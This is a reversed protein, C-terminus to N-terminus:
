YDRGYVGNRTNHLFPHANSAFPAWNTVGPNAEAPVRDETHGDAFVMPAKELLNNYIDRELSRRLTPLENDWLLVKAAPYRVMAQRTGKELKEWQDSPVPEGSWIRPQGLFSASYQYSSFTTGVLSGTDFERTAGPSLYMSSYSDWPYSDLILSPWRNSVEWHGMTILPVRPNPDPYFKGPVVCPYLDKSGQAYLQFVQAINRLNVSSSLERSRDRAGGLAPVAISILLAIIGICVLVEVLTFASRWKRIRRMM